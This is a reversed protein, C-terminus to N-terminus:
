VTKIDIMGLKQMNDHIWVVGQMTNIAPDTMGIYANNVQNVLDNLLTLASQSKLQTDSLTVLQIADERAQKLWHNVNNMAVHIQAAIQTQVPSTGPSSVLSTLHSQIQTTISTPDQYAQIQLLGIEGQVPDVLTPTGAPVDQSVMKIGDLYDLDRIIQRRLLGSDKGWDDRASQSWEILKGTNKFLWLSLGGHLGIGELKPEAALLHRLHKLLSFHNTTDQPNPINPISGRYKWIIQDPSPVTPQMSADEETILFQSMNTLMDKHQAEKYSLQANGNKVTLQGLLIVPGDSQNADSRLWAYYSKGPTPLSINSLSIEVQDNVGTAGNDSLQGSSLFYLHGVLKESTAQSSHQTSGPVAGRQLLTASLTAIALVICLMGIFQLNSKVPKTTRKKPPLSPSDYTPTKEKPGPELTLHAPLIPQEFQTPVIVEEQNNSITLPTARQHAAESLSQLYEENITPLPTIPDVVKRPKPPPYVQAATPPHRIQVEPTHMDEAQHQIRPLVKKPTQSFAELSSYATFGNSTAWQLVSEKSIIFAVSPIIGRRKLLKLENFDRPSRFAKTMQNPLLIIVGDKQGSLTQLAGWVEEKEDDPEIYFLSTQGTDDRRM